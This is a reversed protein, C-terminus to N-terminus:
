TEPAPSSTGYLYYRIGCEKPVTAKDESDNVNNETQVGYSGNIKVGQHYNNRNM